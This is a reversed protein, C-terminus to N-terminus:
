VNPPSPCSGLRPATVPPATDVAAGLLAACATVVRLVDTPTADAHVRLDFPLYGAAPRGGVQGAYALLDHAVHAATTWCSWELGAAPMSWDRHAHPTLARLMEDAATRM